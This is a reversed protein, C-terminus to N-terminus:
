YAKITLLRLVIITVTICRLVTVIWRKHGM